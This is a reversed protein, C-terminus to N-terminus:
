PREPMPALEGVEVGGDHAVAPCEAAIARAAELSDARIVSYGALKTAVPDCNGVSSTTTVPKGLEVVNDEITAFWQMWAAGTEDTRVAGHPARYTLVFEPM